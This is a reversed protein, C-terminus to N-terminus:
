INLGRESARYCKTQRIALYVDLLMDYINNQEGRGYRSNNVCNAREDLFIERNVYTIMFLM